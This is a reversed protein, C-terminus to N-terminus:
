EIMWEELPIPTGCFQLPHLQGKILGSKRYYVIMKDVMEDTEWGHHMYCYPPDIFEKKDYKDLDLSTKGDLSFEYHPMKDIAILNLSARWAWMGHMWEGNAQSMAPFYQTKQWLYIQVGMLFDANTKSLIDRVDRKLYFNPRQDCDQSIIWDAKEEHAWDYLFNLHQGDPNRWIGSDGCEVKWPFNRVQVKPYKLALEITNDTSGGDAILIQDCFESYSKCCADIRHAENLTRILAVVKM